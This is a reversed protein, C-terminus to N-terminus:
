FPHAMRDDRHGPKEDIGLDSVLLFPGVNGSLAGSGFEAGEEVRSIATTRTKHSKPTLVEYSPYESPSSSLLLTNRIKWTTLTYIQENTAATGGEAGIAINAKQLLSM